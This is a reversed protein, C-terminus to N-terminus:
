VNTILEFIFFFERGDLVPFIHLVTCDVSDVFLFSMEKSIFGRHTEVQALHRCPRQDTYSDESRRTDSLNGAKLSKRSHGPPSFTRRRAKTEGSIRRQQTTGHSAGCQKAAETDSQISETKQFLFLCCILDWCFIQRSGNSTWMSTAWIQHHLSPAGSAQQQAPPWPKIGVQSADKWGLPVLARSCLLAHPECDGVM